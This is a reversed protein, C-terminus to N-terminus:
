DNSNEWKCYGFSMYQIREFHRDLAHDIITDDLPGYCTITRWLVEDQLEPFTPSLLRNLKWDDIQYSDANATSFVIATTFLLTKVHKM